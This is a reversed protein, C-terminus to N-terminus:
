TDGAKLLEPDDIANGIVKVMPLWYVLDNWMDHHKGQWKIYFGLYKSNFLGYRIVGIARGDTIVDNEWFPEPTDLDVMRCITNPQIEHMIILKGLEGNVDVRNCTPHIYAKGGSHILDGYIWSNNFAHQSSDKPTTRAKYQAKM